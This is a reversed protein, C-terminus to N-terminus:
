KGICFKRFIEDLVEEDAGKGLLAACATMAERLDLVATEPYRGAAIGALAERTYCAVAELGQKQRLNPVYGGEQGYQSKLRAEIAGRLVDVGAGTKAAIVVGPSGLQQWLRDARQGGGGMLDLKNIVPIPQKFAVRNWHKRDAETLGDVGDILYLLIDASEIARWARRIGECEVPDASERLGATDILGIPMGAIELWGEITDRTTGPTATVIARESGLLRNMLSSKGVNPRGAITISLGERLVRGTEFRACLAEAVELVDTRLKLSLRSYDSATDIEEPFDIDAEIAAVADVLAARMSEVVAAAEGGLAAMQAGLARTTKANILDMTAEATLLDIRGNLFARLTFEGPNALRAGQSLALELIRAGRLVGGHSNIEVVDERTYSRPARMYSVMIEDVLRHDVPDLVFGHYLHHSHPEGCGWLPTACGSQRSLLARAVAVSRPGSLRIIAIGSRGVATSIAVITDKMAPICRM